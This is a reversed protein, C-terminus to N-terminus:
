RQYRKNKEFIVLRWNNGRGNDCTSLTIIQVEYELQVGTDYMSRKKVEQVFKNYDAEDRAMTFKWYEFEYINVSMVAFLQYARKKDTTFNISQHKRWFEQSKYAALAGFMRGGNINHGYIILNDSEKLDCYASLYPTGMHSYRKHIDHNLYYDPEKKAQMVSYCFKMGPIEITGIYDANDM